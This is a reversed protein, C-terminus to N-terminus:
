NNIIYGHLSVVDNSSANRRQKMASKGNRYSIGKFKLSRSRSFYICNQINSILINIKTKNGKQNLIDFQCYVMQKQPIYISELQLVSRTKIIVIHSFVFSCFNIILYIILHSVIFNSSTTAQYTNKLTKKEKLTGFSFKKKRMSFNNKKDLKPILLFNACVILLWPLLTDLLTYNVTKHINRRFIM